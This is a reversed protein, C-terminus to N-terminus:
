RTLAAFLHTKQYTDVLSCFDYARMKVFQVLPAIFLTFFLKFREVVISLKYFKCYKSDEDYILLTLHRNSLSAMGILLTIIHSHRM